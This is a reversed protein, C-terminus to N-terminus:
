LTLYENRANIAEEMTNFTGIHIETYNRSVRAEYRTGNASLRIGKHGTISIYDKNINQESRTAWRLNSFHNNKKNRDAHDIEHLPTPKPPLYHEAVLKHIYFTKIIGDKSLTYNLYTHNSVQPKLFKKSCKSWCRGDDYILYNPYGTVEM